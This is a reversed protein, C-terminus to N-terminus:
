DARGPQLRRTLSTCGQVDNVALKKCLLFSTETKFLRCVHRIDWVTRFMSCQMYRRLVADNLFSRGHENRFMSMRDSDNIRGLIPPSYTLFLNQFLVQGSGIYMSTCRYLPVRIYLKSSHEAGPNNIKSECSFGRITSLKEQLTKKEMSYNKRCQIQRDLCTKLRYKRSIWM